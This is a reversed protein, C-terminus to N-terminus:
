SKKAMEKSYQYQIHSSIPQVNKKFLPCFKQIIRGLFFISVIAYVYTTDTSITLEGAIITMNQKLAERDAGSPLVEQVDIGEM